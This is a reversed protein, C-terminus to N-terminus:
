VPWNEAHRQVIRVATGQFCGLICGRPMEVAAAAGYGGAVGNDQASGHPLHRGTFAQRTGKGRRASCRNERSQINVLGHMIEVAGYQLAELPSSLGHIKHAKSQMKSAQLSM